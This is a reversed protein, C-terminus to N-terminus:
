SKLMFGFVKKVGVKNVEIVRSKSKWGRGAGVTKTQYWTFLIVYTLFALAPVLALLQFVDESVRLHEFYNEYAVIKTITLPFYWSVAVLSYMGAMTGYIRSRSDGSVFRSIFRSMRRNEVAPDPVELFSAPM